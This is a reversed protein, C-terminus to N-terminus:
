VTHPVNVRFMSRIDARDGCETVRGKVFGHFRFWKQVAPSNSVYVRQTHSYRGFGHTKINAKEPGLIRLNRMLFDPAALSLNWSALIEDKIM